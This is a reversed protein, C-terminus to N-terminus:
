GSPKLRFAARASVSIWRAPRCLRVQAGIQEASVKGNREISGSVPAGIGNRLNSFAVQETSIEGWEITTRREVVYNLWTKGIAQSSLNPDTGHDTFARVFTFTGAVIEDVMGLSLNFREQVYDHIPGLESLIKRNSWGRFPRGVTAQSL